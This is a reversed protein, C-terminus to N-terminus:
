EAVVVAGDPLSGAIRSADMRSLPMASARDTLRLTGNARTGGYYSCRYLVLYLQHM